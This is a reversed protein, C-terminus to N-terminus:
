AQSAALQQMAGAIEERTKEDKTEALRKMLSAMTTHYDDHPDEWSTDGFVAMFKALRANNKANTNSKWTAGHPLRIGTEPHEHGDWHDRSVGVIGEGEYTKPAKSPDFPGHNSQVIWTDDIVKGYQDPGFFTPDTMVQQWRLHSENHVIMRSYGFTNSRFASRPPQKEQFPEHLEKCGAAGTVIFIPANPEVNSQTTKGEYTPWNREYNHEHGNVFLDVGQEFFLKEFGYTGNSWPGLRQQKAEGECDGDCSCYMSRHGNVVIWPVNERNLNALKLDAELWEFQDKILQNGGRNMMAGGQIETSISVYHVLGADWSFYWVNPAIGNVSEVTGTKTPMYRFSETFRALSLDSDEHNGHSIMYPFRSAVPEINRFFNDATVGGDTDLDYAFDGTHLIMDPAESIIGATKNECVCTENGNCDICLSYAFAAGMDGFLLHTQPYTSRQSRFSRVDSWGNDPCGVRYYYQSDSELPSMVATHMTWNRGPDSTYLTEQGRAEYQLSNEDKGWQVWSSTLPASANELTAWGVHMSSVDYGLALRLQEPAYTSATVVEVAALALVLTSYYMFLTTKKLRDVTEGLL